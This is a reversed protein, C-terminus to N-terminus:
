QGDMFNVVSQQNPTVQVTRTKTVPTGNQDTWTARLEYSNSNGSLPPTQFIRTSGTQQTKYGSFWLEANPPCMVQIVATNDAQAPMNPPYFSQYTSTTPTYGYYLPDSYYYPTSYYPTSYYQNAYGYNYPSYYYPSGYHGYGGYYGGYYPQGIGVGIRTGGHGGSGYSFRVQADSTQAVLFLGLVALVAAKGFLSGFRYM